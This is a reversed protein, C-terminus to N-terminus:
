FIASLASASRASSQEPPGGSAAASCTCSAKRSGLSHSMNEINRAFEPDTAFGDAQAKAMDLIEQHCCRLHLLSPAAGGSNKVRSSFYASLFRISADVAQLRYLVFAGLLAIAGALTQSITSFTYLLANQMEKQRSVSLAHNQAAM